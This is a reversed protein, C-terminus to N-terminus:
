KYSMTVTATANAMGPTVSGSIQIYRASWNISYIGDPTGATDVFFESNLPLPTNNTDLIQVGVGSAAGNGSSSLAITGNFGSVATASIQTNIRAGSICNLKISFPISELVNGVGTFRTISNKGMPVNVEPTTIDCEQVILNVNPFHYTFLVGKDINSIPTRYNMTLPPLSITGSVLKATKVLVWTDTFTSTQNHGIGRNWVSFPSNFPGNSVTSTSSTYSNLNKWQIGIGSYSTNRFEGLSAAGYDTNSKNLYIMWSGDTITNSGSKDCVIAVSSTVTALVTGIPADRQVSITAPMNVLVDSATCLAWAISSPLLLTLLTVRVFFRINFFSKGM